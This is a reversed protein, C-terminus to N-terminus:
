FIEKRVFLGYSTEVSPNSGYEDLNLALGFQIGKMELGLRFWQYSRINSENDFVNLLKIRTFLKMRDNIAPKYQFITMIDYSYDSRNRFGFIGLEGSAQHVGIRRRQLHLGFDRGLFPQNVALFDHREALGQLFPLLRGKLEVLPICRGRLLELVERLLPIREGRFNESFWAGADLSLLEALPKKWVVGESDTTRTIEPDHIVVLQQDVTRFVDLEILDTGLEIAQEFAPITNEPAFASNGRHAAIATSFAVPKVREICDQFREIV